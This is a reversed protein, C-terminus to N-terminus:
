MHLGPVWNTLRTFYPERNLPQSAWVTSVRIVDGPAAECVCVREEWASGHTEKILLKM